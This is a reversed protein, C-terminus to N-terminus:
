PFQWNLVMESEGAMSNSAYGLNRTLEMIWSSTAEWIMGGAGVKGPNGHYSGDTNLKFWFSLSKLRNNCAKHNVEQLNRMRGSGLVERQIKEINNTTSDIAKSLIKFGNFEALDHLSPDHSNLYLIFICLLTLIPILHILKEPHHPSSSPATKKSKQKEDDDKDDNSKTILKKQESSSSSTEQLIIVGNAHLKAAPSGLSQRHM